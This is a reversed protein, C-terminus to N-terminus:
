PSEMVIGPAGRHLLTEDRPYTFLLFPITAVPQFVNRVYLPCRRHQGISVDTMRMSGPPMRRLGAKFESQNSEKEQFLFYDVVVLM